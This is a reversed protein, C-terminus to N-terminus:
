EGFLVSELDTFAPPVGEGQRLREIDFEDGPNLFQLHYGARADPTGAAVCAVVCSQGLVQFHGSEVAYQLATGEDIGFGILQPHQQLVCQLRRFRNRKVFHQDIVANPILDFGRGMTPKDRGGAIMVRSMVAAGASTGGIVGNRGLVQKLRTEVLTRGYSGTLWTQTGGGLWVGTATELMESVAPDDAATRSDAYLVDISKVPYRSWAERYQQRSGADTAEAPIVVIHAGNGGALEIFRQRIMEPLQGGGAILLTGGSRTQNVPSDHDMRAVRRHIEARLYVGVGVTMLWACGWCVIRRRPVHWWTGPQQCVLLSAVRRHYWSNALQRWRSKPPTSM